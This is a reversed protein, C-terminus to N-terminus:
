FIAGDFFIEFDIMGSFRFGVIQRDNFEQYQDIARQAAKGFSTRTRLMEFSQQEKKNSTGLRITLDDYADVGMKIYM